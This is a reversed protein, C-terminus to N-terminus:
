QEELEIERCGVQGDTALHACAAGGQLYRRLRMIAAVLETGAKSPVCKLKYPFPLQSMQIESANVHTDDLCALDRWAIRDLHDSSNRRRILHCSGRVWMSALCM